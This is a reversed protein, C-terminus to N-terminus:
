SGSEGRECADIEFLRRLPLTYPAVIHMTHMDFSSHITVQETRTDVIASLGQLFCFTKEDAQQLIHLSATLSGEICCM